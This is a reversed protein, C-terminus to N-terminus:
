LYTFLNGQVDGHLGLPFTSNPAIDFGTHNSGYGQLDMKIGIYENINFVLSGGGGNISHGKSYPASPAYRAYSYDFGIESRPFEQAAAGLGLLLIAVVFILKTFTM